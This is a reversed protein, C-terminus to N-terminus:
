FLNPVFPLVNEDEKNLHFSTKAVMFVNSLVALLYFILIIFLGNGANGLILNSLFLTIGMGIITIISWLLQFSVIKGAITNKLHDSTDKKWFILPLILNIFPMFALLLTVLNIKKLSLFSPRLLEDQKSSSTLKLIDVGLTEALVKVTFARPTVTGKEIRQITSLSINAKEALAEQSLGLKKRFDSVNSALNSTGKQM